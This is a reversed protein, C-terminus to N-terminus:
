DCIGVPNDCDPVYVKYETLHYFRTYLMPYQFAIPLYNDYPKPIVSRPCGESTTGRKKDQRKRREHSCRRAPHGTIMKTKKRKGATTVYADSLTCM